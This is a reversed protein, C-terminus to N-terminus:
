KINWSKIGAIYCDMNHDAILDLKFDRLSTIVGDFFDRLRFWYNSGIHIEKEESIYLGLGVHRYGLWPGPLRSVIDSNNVFRFIREKALANIEDKAKHQAVRPQGFTYVSHFDIGIELLKAAAVVAMAGGLSHGTIFIPKSKVKQDVYQTNILQDYHELLADWLDNVSNLFGRHFKGVSIRKMRFKINDFWDGIEDTGRFALVIYDQHEVIIAQASKTSFGKVSVFGESEKKLTSLVKMECPANDKKSRNIYAAKAIKAMLYANGADLSTAELNVKNM